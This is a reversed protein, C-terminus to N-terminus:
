YWGSCLKQVHGVALLFKPVGLVQYTILELRQHAILFGFCVLFFFFTSWLHTCFQLGHSCRLIVFTYAKSETCRSETLKLLKCISIYIYTLRLVVSICRMFLTIKTNNQSSICSTWHLIICRDGPYCAATSTALACAQHGPSVTVLM